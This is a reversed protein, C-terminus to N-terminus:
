LLLQPKGWVHKQEVTAWHGAPIELAPQSYAADQLGGEDGHPVPCGMSVHCPGHLCIQLVGPSLEAGLLGAHPCPAPSPLLSPCLCISRVLFPSCSHAQPDKPHSTLHAVPISVDKEQQLWLYWVLSTRSLFSEVWRPIGRWKPQLQKLQQLLSGSCAM